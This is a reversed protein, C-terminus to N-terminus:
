EVTLFILFLIIYIDKYSFYYGAGLFTYHSMSLLISTFITFFLIKIDKNLKSIKTLQYSLLVCLLKLVLIVFIPFTRTAGISEVGFIKWMVIPYLIDSAGHTLYSATWINKTSLYNQAPTM